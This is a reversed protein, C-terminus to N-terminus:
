FRLTDPDADSHQQHGDFARHKAREAVDDLGHEILNEDGSVPTSDAKDGKGDAHNEHDPRDRREAM